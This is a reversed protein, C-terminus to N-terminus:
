DLTKERAAASSHGAATFQKTISGIPQPTTILMPAHSSVDREGATNEYITQGNKSIAVAIGSTVRQAPQAQVLGDIKEKVGAPLSLPSEKAVAFSVTAALMGLCAIRSKQLDM